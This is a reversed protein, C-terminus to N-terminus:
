LCLPGRSFYFNCDLGQVVQQRFAGSITALFRRGAAVALGLALPLEKARLSLLSGCYFSM